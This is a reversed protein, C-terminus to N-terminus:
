LVLDFRWERGAAKELAQRTLEDAGRGNISSDERFSVVAEVTCDRQVAPLAFTAQTEGPAVRKWDTLNMAPIQLETVFPGRALASRRKTETGIVTTPGATPGDVFIAFYKHFGILGLHEFWLRLDRGLSSTTRSKGILTDFCTHVSMQKREADPFRLLARTKPSESDDWGGSHTGPNRRYRVFSPDVYNHNDCAPKSFPTVLLSNITAPVHIIGVLLACALHDGIFNGLNNRPDSSYTGHPPDGQWGFSDEFPTPVLSDRPLLIFEAAAPFLGFSMREQKRVVITETHELVAFDEQMGLELGVAIENAKRQLWADAALLECRVPASSANVIRDVQTFTEPEGVNFAVCGSGLVAAVLLATPLLPRISRGTM